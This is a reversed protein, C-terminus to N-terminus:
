DIRKIKTSTPIEDSNNAIPQLNNLRSEREKERQNIMALVYNKIKNFLEIFQAVTCKGQLINVNDVLQLIGGYVKGAFFCDAQVKRLCSNILNVDRFLNKVIDQAYGEKILDDHYLNVMSDIQQMVVDVYPKCAVSNIVNNVLANFEDDDTYAFIKKDVYKVTVTAKRTPLAVYEKWKIAYELASNFATLMHSDCTYYSIQDLVSFLKYLIQNACDVTEKTDDILVDSVTDAIEALTSICLFYSERVKPNVYESQSVIGLVHIFDEVFKYVKYKVNYTTKMKRRTAREAVNEERQQSNQNSNPTQNVPQQTVGGGQSKAEIEKKRRELREKLIKTRQLTNIDNRIRALREEVTKPLQQTNINNRIRAFREEVTKPLQQSNQNINQNTNGQSIGLGSQQPSVAIKPPNEHMQKIENLREQEKERIRDIVLKVKKLIAEVETDSCKGQLMDILSSFPFEKGIDGLLFPDSQIKELERVFFMCDMELRHFSRVEEQMVQWEDQAVAIDEEVIAMDEELDTAMVQLDEQSILGNQFQIVIQDHKALLDQKRQQAEKLRALSEDVKDSIPDTMSQLQERFLQMDAKVDVSDLVNKVTAILVENETYCSVNEAIYNDDARNENNPADVCQVWKRASDLATHMARLGESSCSFNLLQEIFNFVNDLIQSAFDVAVKTSDVTVQQVCDIIECLCCICQVYRDKVTPSVNPSDAVIGITKSINDLFNLVDDKVKMKAM